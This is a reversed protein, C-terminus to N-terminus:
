VRLIKSIVHNRDIIGKFKGQERVYALRHGEQKMKLVVQIMPTDADVVLPKRNLVDRVRLRTEQKFFEEFPAFESLFGLNPIRSMYNPFAADIIEKSTVAGIIEGSPTCVPAEHVGHEFFADLLDRLLMDETACVPSDYALDRAFMGRNIQVGSAEILDVVESPDAVKKIAELRDPDQAFGTIGAMSHLLLTYKKDNALVLWIIAVKSGDYCTTDLPAQPIGIFLYFDSLGSIRAHPIAVGREMATSAQRERQMVAEFMTEYGEQRCADEARHLMEAVAAELTRAELAVFINDESILSSLKM